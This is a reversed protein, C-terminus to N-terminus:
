ELSVMKLQDLKVQTILYSSKKKNQTTTSEDAIVAVNATGIAFLFVIVIIIKEKFVM